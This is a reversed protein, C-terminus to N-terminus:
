SIPNLVLTVNSLRGSNSAMSDKMTNIFKAKTDPNFLRTFKDAFSQSMGVLSLLSKFAQKTIGIRTGRYEITKEDIMNIDRFPLTRRLSQANISEQKSLELVNSSLTQISM